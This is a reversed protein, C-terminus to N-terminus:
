MARAPEAVPTGPSAARQASRSLAWVACMGAAGAAVLGATVLIGFWVVAHSVSFIWLFARYPLQRM